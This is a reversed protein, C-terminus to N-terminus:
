APFTTRLWTTVAATVADERGKYYHDCNPILAFACAAGVAAQVQEGPYMDAPESDGRLYLTPCRVRAMDAVLEPMCSIRDLYSEASIVYFWGPMQMLTRGQGAAVLQEARAKAAGHGDGTMLGTAAWSALTDAGVVGGRHASLLILAPTEPHDLVHHAGLMGGNSHGIVIPAAFGRAALWDAATRNDAIDEATMQFATGEPARSDRTALIDHARRNFALSAYGLEALAPPLFRSHGTYFNMANGHFLLAAGRVPRDEPMYFAGDLPHTATAISVLETRM